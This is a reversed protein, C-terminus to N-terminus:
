LAEEADLDIHVAIVEGDEDGSWTGKAKLEERAARLDPRITVWGADTM